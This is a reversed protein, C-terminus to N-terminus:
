SQYIGVARCSFHAVRLDGYTAVAAVNIAFIQIWVKRLWVNGFQNICVDIFGRPVPSNRSAYNVCPRSLAKIDMHHIAIRVFAMAKMEVSQTISAIRVASPRESYPRPRSFSAIFYSWALRPSINKVGSFRRDAGPWEMIMDAINLGVHVASQEACQNDAIWHSRARVVLLFL